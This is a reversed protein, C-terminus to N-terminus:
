VACKYCGNGKGIMDASGRSSANFSSLCDEACLLQLLSCRKTHAEAIMERTYEVTSDLTTLM